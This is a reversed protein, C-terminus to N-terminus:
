TLIKPDGQLFASVAREEYVTIIAIFQSTSYNQMKKDGICESM